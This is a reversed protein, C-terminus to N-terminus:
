TRRGISPFLGQPRRQLFLILALLLLIKALVAGVWPELLKNAVGLSFAAVLTGWLNGVGGFVVVLFSDIIYAQGLNPGVNTLQSLAVGAVGAVGSGLAFTMADVRASRVGLARAMSRNQAVARLQLGFRSYRMLSVLAAFVLLSFLLIAMRNYTLALGPTLEWAGSLWEPTVVARNLPSFLSRVTQQLILSIGFTALLTELPRGYLFRIVGREIVVGVLGAVCFAAPISLCLALGPSEPMLQQLSWTTYAGLMILEGHAMNIVGMVGFTIALGIASLMLVSGLSLGFFVAEVRALWRLKSEALRLLQAAEARLSVPLAEQQQLETLAQRVVPDTRGRLADLATELEADAYLAASSSGSPANPADDANRESVGIKLVALALGIGIEDRVSADSELRRQKKLAALAIPSPSSVIQKVAQLRLDSDAASLDGISQLTQLEARLENDISVRRVDRRRLQGLPEGSFVDFVQYRSGEREGVVVSGDVRNLFLAGRALAEFVANRSETGTQAIQALLERKEASSAEGLQNVLERLDQALVTVPMVLALLLLM